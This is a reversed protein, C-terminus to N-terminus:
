AIVGLEFSHRGAHKGPLLCIANEGGISEMPAGEAQCHANDAIDLWGRGNDDWQLWRAREPHGYAQALALHPGPHRAELECSLKRATEHAGDPLADIIALEPQSLVTQRDCPGTDEMVPLIRLPYSM